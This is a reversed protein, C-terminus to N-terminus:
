VYEEEMLPEDHYHSESYESLACAPCLRGGLSPEGCMACPASEDVDCADLERDADYVSVFM